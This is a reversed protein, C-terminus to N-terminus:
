ASVNCRDANIIAGQTNSRSGSAAVSGTECPVFNKLSFIWDTLWLSLHSDGRRYYRSDDHLYICKRLLRLCNWTRAILVAITWQTCICFFFFVVYPFVSYLSKFSSSIQMWVLLDVRLTLETSSLPPFPGNGSIYFNFVLAVLWVKEVPFVCSHTQLM